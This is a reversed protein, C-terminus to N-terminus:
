GRDVCRRHGAQERASRIYGVVACEVDGVLEEADPCAEQVLLAQGVIADVM